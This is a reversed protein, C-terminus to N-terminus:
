VSLETLQLKNDTVEEGMAEAMEERKARRLKAKVSKGKGTGGALKAQTEQIKRQIEKEDILKDERRVNGRQQPPRQNGARGRNFGGGGSPRNDEKNIFVERHTGDKKTIPIRKRPRKEERVPRTDNNVPLEIKGLIKPGSLKEVEINEITPPLEEAPKVPEVPATAAVAPAEEEKKKKSPKEVVQEPEEKKAKAGKKPRVSSDIADLDIKKVVKPGEM